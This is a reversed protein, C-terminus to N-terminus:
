SNDRLNHWFKISMNKPYKTMLLNHNFEVIERSAYFFEKKKDVSWQSIEKCIEAIRIIRQSNDKIQDYSEDWFKDFTKYGLKKFFELTRHAGIIIFPHKYKIPKFSKETTTVSFEEFNTETVLSILSKTYWEALQDQSDSVQEQTDDVPDFKMPLMNQILKLDEETLGINKSFRKDIYDIWKQSMYDPDLEAMSFFSDKLLDHKYFLALLNCRHPRFRRNFTLFDKEIMEFTTDKAVFGRQQLEKSLCYDVWDFYIVQMREQPRLNRDDCWSKYIETANPCGTQYIIKNMPIHWFNFYNHMHRFWHDDVFSESTNELLIYGKHHRVGNIIVHGAYSQEFMGHEPMCMIEIPQKWTCVYEYIFTDEPKISFQPYFDYGEINGFVETSVRPPIWNRWDSVRTPEMTSALATVTPAHNNILPGKPGYWDYIIKVRKEM